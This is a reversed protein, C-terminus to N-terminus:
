CHAGKYLAIVISGGESSGDAIQAQEPCCAVGCALTARRTGVSCAQMCAQHDRIIRVRLAAVQQRVLGLAHAGGREDDGVVVGGHQGQQRAGPLTGQGQLPGTSQEPALPSPGQSGRYSHKVPLTCRCRGPPGSSSSLVRTIYVFAACPCPPLAPLRVLKIAHQAVHGARAVAGHALRGVDPLAPCRAVAVAQVGQLRTCARQLGAPGVDPLGSPGRQQRADSVAATPRWGPVGARAAPLGSSVDAHACSRM